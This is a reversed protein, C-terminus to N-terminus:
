TIFLVYGSVEALIECNEKTIPHLSGLVCGLDKVKDWGDGIFKKYANYGCVNVGYSGSVDTMRQGDLDILDMRDTKDVITTPDFADTLFKSFPFFVRNTSAFRLDSFHKSLFHSFEASKSWKNAWHAKFKNFANRRLNIIEEPAGDADFFNAETYHYMPMIRWVIEFIFTLPFTVVVTVAMVFVRWAILIALVYGTWSFTAVKFSNLACAIGFFGLGIVEQKNSIPLGPPLINMMILASATGCALFGYTLEHGFYAAIAVGVYALFASQSGCGHFWQAWLSVLGGGALMVPFTLEIVQDLAEM